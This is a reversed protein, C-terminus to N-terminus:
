DTSNVSTNSTKGVDNLFTYEPKQLELNQLKENTINIIEKNNEVKQELNELTKVINTLVNHNTTCLDYINQFLNSNVCTNKQSDTVNNKNDLINHKNRNQLLTKLKYLGVFTLGIGFTGVGTLVVNSNKSFVM